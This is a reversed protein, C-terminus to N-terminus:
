RQLEQKEGNIRAWRFGLLLYGTLFVDSVHLRHDRYFPQMMFATQRCNVGVMWFLTSAHQPELPYGIFAM